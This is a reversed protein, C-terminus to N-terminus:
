RCDPGSLIGPMLDPDSHTPATIFVPSPGCLEYSNQGAREPRTGSIAARCGAGSGRLVAILM